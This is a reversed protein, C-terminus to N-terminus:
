TLGAVKALVEDLPPYHGIRTGIHRWRVSGTQDLVVVGPSRVTDKTISQPRFGKALSRTYAAAGRPDAMRWGLPKSAGVYDRFTQAPDLLLPIRVGRAEHLWVAQYDASGGIAIAGVSEKALEGAIRDLDILWEQCPLCGFYRVLHVLTLRETLLNGLAVTTGDATSLDLDLPVANTTIEAAM